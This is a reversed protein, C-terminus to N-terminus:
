TEDDKEAAWAMVPSLAGIPTAGNAIHRELRALAQAQITDSFEADRIVQRADDATVVQRSTTGVQPPTLAHLLSDFLNTLM